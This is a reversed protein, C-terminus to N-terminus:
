GLMKEYSKVVRGPVKFEKTVLYGNREYFSMAPVAAAYTLLM